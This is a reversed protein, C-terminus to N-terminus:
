VHIPSPVDAELDQEDTLRLFGGCFRVSTILIGGLRNLLHTARALSEVQCHWCGPNREIARFNRRTAARTRNRLQITRDGLNLLKRPSFGKVVRCILMRTPYVYLPGNTTPLLLVV